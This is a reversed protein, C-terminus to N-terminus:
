LGLRKARDTYVKQTTGQEFSYKKLLLLAKTAKNM